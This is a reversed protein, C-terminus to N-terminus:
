MACSMILMSHIEMIRSSLQRIKQTEKRAFLTCASQENFIRIQQCFTEIQQNNM